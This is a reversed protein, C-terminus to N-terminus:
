RYLHKSLPTAVSSRIRFKATLSKGWFISIICPYSTAKKFISYLPFSAISLCLISFASRQFSGSAGCQFIPRGSLFLWSCFASYIFVQQFVHLPWGMLAYAALLFSYVPSRILTMQDYPGLWEVNLITETMGIYRLSDHPGELPFISSHWNLLLALVAACTFPLDVKDRGVSQALV